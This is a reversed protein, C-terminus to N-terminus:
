GVGGIMGDTCMTHGVGVAIGDARRGHGTVSGKQGESAIIWQPADTFTMQGVGDATWRQGVSGKQGESAIIGQLGDATSAQGVRKRQGVNAGSIHTEFRPQGM